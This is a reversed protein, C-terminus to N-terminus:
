GSPHGEEDDEDDLDEEEEEEEEEDDDVLVAEITELVCEVIEDVVVVEAAREVVEGVLGSIVGEGLLDV